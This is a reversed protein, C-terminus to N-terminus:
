PDPRAIGQYMYGHTKPDDSMYFEKLDVLQFGANRILEKMNLNLQCGAGIVKQIPNLRHQWKQIHHEHSLGHELFYYHGFPRLVRRIEGLVKLPEEVSCLTYSTVVSDFRHDTFPLHEGKLQWSDIDIRCQRARKKARVNMGPNPDITTIKEVYEPYHPLNLGTGFGIELIDGRVQALQRTRARGKADSTMMWDYGMPLLVDSYVGMM